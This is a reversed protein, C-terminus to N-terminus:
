SSTQLTNQSGNLSWQHSFISTPTPYIKNSATISLFFKSTLDGDASDLGLSNGGNATAKSIITQPIPQFSIAYTLNVITNIAQVTEDGINFCEEMLAASTSFTNTVFIQRRGNPTSADMEIAFDSLNSIRMTSSLPPLETFPKFVAPYEEAKTYELNNVITRSKTQTTYGYSHILAAYPDYTKSQGFAESAKFQAHRTSIDQALIGGWMKGQKFARIDFRTVIGFNNSGGKLAQWLDSHSMVNANVVQGSALVVQVLTLVPM